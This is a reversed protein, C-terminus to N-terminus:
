PSAAASRWRGDVQDDLGVAQLAPRALDRVDGLDHAHLLVRDDHLVDEPVLLVPMSSFPRAYPWNSAVPTRGVNM